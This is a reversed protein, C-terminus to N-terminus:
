EAFSADVIYTDSYDNSLFALFLREDRGNSDIGSAELKVGTIQEIAKIYFMGNYDGYEIKRPFFVTPTMLEAVLPLEPTLFLMSQVELALKEAETLEEEGFAVCTLCLMLAFLLSTFRNVRKM